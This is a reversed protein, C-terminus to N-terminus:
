SLVATVFYQIWASFVSRYVFCFPAGIQAQIFDTYKERMQSGTTNVEMKTIIRDQGQQRDDDLNQMLRKYKCVTLYTLM